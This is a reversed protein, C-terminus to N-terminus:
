SPRCVKRDGVLLGTSVCNTSITISRPRLGTARKRCSSATSESSAAVWSSSFMTTLWTGRLAVAFRLSSDCPLM